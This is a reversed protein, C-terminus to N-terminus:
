WTVEVAPQPPPPPSCARPSSSNKLSGSNETGVSVAVTLTLATVGSPDAVAFKGRLSLVAGSFRMRALEALWRLRSRPWHSDDIDPKTWDAPPPDSTLADIWRGRALPVLKGEGATKMPPRLTVHWRWNSNANLIEAGAPASADAAHVTSAVVALFVCLVFASARM